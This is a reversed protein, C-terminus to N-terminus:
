YSNTILPMADYTRGNLLRGAAKKNKGGWQKFFFPVNAEQCQIRIEEVWTEKMERAKFGSEGGVIVWHIGELNLDPLSGLLPELSLFRTHANVRQLFPIREIVRDDEVSVGIWINPTFDLHKAYDELVDGRKTLVQYTHQPTDNMVKFVSKVYELPVDKHFLDSMSNVFVLQPKRWTYPVLLTAPHIRFKFGESYKEQGMGKLRKTMTEAYCFKCGASLKDCGTTPNWTMETWEISSKAM